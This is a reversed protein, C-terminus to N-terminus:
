GSLPLTPAKARVAAPPLRQYPTLVAGPAYLQSEPSQTERTTGFLTNSPCLFRTKNETHKYEQFVTLM